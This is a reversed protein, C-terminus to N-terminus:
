DMAPDFNSVDVQLDSFFLTLKSQLQQSAAFTLQTIRQDVVIDHHLTIPMYLLALSELIDLSASAPIYMYNKLSDFRRALDANQEPVYRQEILLALPMLPALTRSPYAYGSSGQARMSCTPSLLIAMGYELPGSLFRRKATSQDPDDYIRDAPLPFALPVDRFIDGQSLLEHRIEYYEGAPRPVRDV